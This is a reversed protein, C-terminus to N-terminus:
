LGFAVTIFYWGTYNGTFLVDAIGTCRILLLIYSGPHDSFARLFYMSELDHVGVSPHYNM